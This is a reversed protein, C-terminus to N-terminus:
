CFRKPLVAEHVFNCSSCYKNCVYISFLVTLRVECEQIIFHKHTQWMVSLVYQTEKTARNKSARVLYDGDDVLLRQVEERPLVGHYWEEDDLQRGPHLAPQLLFACFEATVLVM